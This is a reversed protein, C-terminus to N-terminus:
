FMHCFQRVIKQLQQRETIKKGCKWCFVSIPNTRMSLDLVRYDKIISDYKKFIITYNLFIITYKFVIM